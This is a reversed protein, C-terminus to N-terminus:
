GHGPSGVRRSVAATPVVQPKRTVRELISAAALTPICAHPVFHTLAFQDALVAVLGCAPAALLFLRWVPRLGATVEGLKGLVGGLFVAPVIASVVIIMMVAGERVRLELTLAAAIVVTNALAIWIGKAVPTM